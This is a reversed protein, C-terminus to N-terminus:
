GRLMGLSKKIYCPVFVKEEWDVSLSLLQSAGGKEDYVYVCRASCQDLRKSLIIAGLVLPQPSM